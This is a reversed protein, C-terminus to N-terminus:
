YIYEGTCISLNPCLTHIRACVASIQTHYISKETMKTEHMICTVYNDNQVLICTVHFFSAPLPNTLDNEIGVGM